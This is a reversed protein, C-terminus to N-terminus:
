AEIECPGIAQHQSAQICADLHQSSNTQILIAQLPLNFRYTGLKQTKPTVLRHKSSGLRLVKCPRRGVRYLHSLLWAAVLGQQFASM